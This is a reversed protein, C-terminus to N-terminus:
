KLFADCMDILAKLKENDTINKSGCLEFCRYTEFIVDDPYQEKTRFRYPVSTDQPGGMNGFHGAVQLSDNYFFNCFRNGLVTYELTNWDGTVGERTNHLNKHFLDVFCKKYYAVEGQVREKERLYGQKKEAAAIQERIPAQLTELQQKLRYLEIELTQIKMQEELFSERLQKRLEALSAM